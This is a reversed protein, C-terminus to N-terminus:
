GMPPPSMELEPERRWDIQVDALPVMFAPRPQLEDLWIGVHNRDVDVSIWCSRIERTREGDSVRVRPVRTRDASNFHM